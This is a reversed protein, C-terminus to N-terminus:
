VTGLKHGCCSSGAGPLSGTDQPRDEGAGAGSVTYIASGIGRGQCNKKLTEVIVVLGKSQGPLWETEQLPSLKDIKQDM